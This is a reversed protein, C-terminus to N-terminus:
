QATCETVGNSVTARLSGAQTQAFEFPRSVQSALYIRVNSRQAKLVFLPSIEAM